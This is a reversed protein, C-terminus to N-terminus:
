SCPLVEGLKGGDIGWGTSNSNAMKVVQGHPVRCSLVGFVQPSHDRQLYSGEREVKTDM